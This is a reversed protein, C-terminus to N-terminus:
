STLVSNLVLSVVAPAITNPIWEIERRKKLDVYCQVAYMMGFVSVSIIKHM